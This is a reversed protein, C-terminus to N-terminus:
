AAHRIDIGAWVPEALALHLPSQMLGFSSWYGPVLMHTAVCHEALAACIPGGM